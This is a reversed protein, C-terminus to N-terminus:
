EIMDKTMSSLHGVAYVIFFFFYIISFYISFFAIKSYLDANFYMCM